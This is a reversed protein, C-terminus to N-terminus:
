YSLTKGSVGANCFVQLYEQREKELQEKKNGLITKFISYLNLQELRVVDMEEKALEIELLQLQEQKEKILKRINLIHIKLKEKRKIEQYLELLQTDLNKM